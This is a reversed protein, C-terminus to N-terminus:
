RSNRRGRSRSTSWWTDTEAPTRRSLADPPPTVHRHDWCCLLRQVGGTRAPVVSEGHEGGVAVPEQRQPPRTRRVRVVLRRRDTAGATGVAAFRPRLEPDHEVVPLGQDLGSERAQHPIRAPGPPLCEGQDAAVGVGVRRAGVPVVHVDHLGGVPLRPHKAAGRDDRLRRRDPPPVGAEEGEVRFAVEGREPVPLCRLSVHRRRPQDAADGRGIIPQRPACRLDHTARGVDVDGFRLGGAHRVPPPQDRDAAVVHPHTAPDDVGGGVEFRQVQSLKAQGPPGPLGRDTDRTVARDDHQQAVLPRATHM